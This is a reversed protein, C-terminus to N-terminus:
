VKSRLRRVELVGVTTLFNEMNKGLKGQNFKEIGASIIWNYVSHTSLHEALKEANITYEIKKM